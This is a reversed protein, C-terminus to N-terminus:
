IPLLFVLIDLQLPGLYQLGPV